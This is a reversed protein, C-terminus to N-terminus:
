INDRHAFCCCCCCCCSQLLNCFIALGSRVVPSSSNIVSWVSSFAGFSLPFALGPLWCGQCAQTAQTISDPLSSQLTTGTAYRYRILARNQMQCLLVRKTPQWAGNDALARNRSEQRQGQEQKSAPARAISLPRDQSDIRPGPYSLVRCWDPWSQQVRSSSPLLLFMCPALPKQGAWVRGEAARVHVACRACAPEDQNAPQSAPQGQTKHKIYCYCHLMDRDREGRIRIRAPRPPPPLPSSVSLLPRVGLSVVRARVVRANIITISARVTM